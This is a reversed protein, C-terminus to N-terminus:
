DAGQQAAKALSLALLAPVVPRHVVDVVGAGDAMQSITDANGVIVVPLGPGVAKLLAPYADVDSRRTLLLLADFASASLTNLARDQDSFGVPEYGFAAVTEELKLREARDRGVLLIRKGSGEGGSPLSEAGQADDIPLWVSITSGHGTESRVDLTGRHEAVIRKVTALGLGNGTERTSFFPEFLRDQVAQDMGEGDDAISLVAYRGPEAVGHSLHVAGPQERTEVGVRVVGDRPGIAQWANRVLNLLVQEIQQPDVSALVGKALNQELRISAPMSASLLRLADRALAALDARRRSMQDTRGFAMIESVVDHARDASKLIEQIHRDLAQRHQAEGAMEAHGRMAATINNLNHAIGSAFTGVAELRQAQNLRAELARQEAKQIVRDIADSIADLPGRLLNLVDEGYHFSGRQRELTLLSGRRADGSRYCFWTAVNAGRIARSLETDPIARGRRVYIFDRGADHLAFQELIGSPVPPSGPMSDYRIRRADTSVYRARDAGAWAAVRGLAEEIITDLQTTGANISRLTMDAIIADLEKRAQITRIKTRLQFGVAVCAAAALAAAISFAILYTRTLTAHRAQAAAIADAVGGAGAGSLVSQVLRDVGALTSRILQAHAVLSDRSEAQSAEATGTRLRSIAAQLTEANDDSPNLTFALMSTALVGVDTALSGGEPLSRQLSRSLASFYVLSNQLLANESKFQEILMQRSDQRERAHGAAEGIEPMGADLSDIERLAAMARDSAAVIADYNRLLGARALLMTTNLENSAAEHSKRTEEIHRLITEQRWLDLLAYSTVVLLLLASVGFLVPVRM